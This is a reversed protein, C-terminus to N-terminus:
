EKGIHCALIILLTVCTYQWFPMMALAYAMGFLITQLCFRVAKEVTM